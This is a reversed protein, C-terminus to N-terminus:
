ALDLRADRHADLLKRGSRFDGMAQAFHAKAFFLLDFEEATLGIEDALNAIGAQADAATQGFLDDDFRQRQWALLDSLLPWM